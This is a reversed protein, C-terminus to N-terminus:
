SIGIPDAGVSPLSFSFFYSPFSAPGPPLIWGTITTLSTEALGVPARFQSSGVSNQGSSSLPHPRRCHFWCKRSTQLRFSAISLCSLERQCWGDGSLSQWATVTLWYSPSTLEGTQPSLPFIYTFAGLVTGEAKGSDEAGSYEM